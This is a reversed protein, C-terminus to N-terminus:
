FFKYFYEHVEKVEAQLRRKDEDIDAYQSQLSTLEQNMINM